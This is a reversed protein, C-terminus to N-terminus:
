LIVYYAYMVPLAHWMVYYDYYMVPLANWAVSCVSSMLGVLMFVYVVNVVAAVTGLIIAYMIFASIM